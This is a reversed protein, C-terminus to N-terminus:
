LLPKKLQSVIIGAARLQHCIPALQVTCGTYHANHFMFTCMFRNWQTATAAKPLYSQIASGNITTSLLHTPFVRLTALQPTCATALPITCFIRFQLLVIQHVLPCTLYPSSLNFRQFVSNQASCLSLNLVTPRWSLALLLAATSHM